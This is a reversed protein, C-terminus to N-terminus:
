LICTAITYERDRPSSYACREDWPCRSHVSESPWMERENGVCKRIARMTASLHKQPRATPGYYITLPEHRTRRDAPRFRNRDTCVVCAGDFLLDDRTTLFPELPSLTPSSIATDADSLNTMFYFM